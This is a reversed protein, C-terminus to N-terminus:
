IILLKLEAKLNIKNMHLILACKYCTFSDEWILIFVSVVSIFAFLYFFIIQVERKM